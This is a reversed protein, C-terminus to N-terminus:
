INRKLFYHKSMKSQCSSHLAETQIGGIDMYKKCRTEEFTCTKDTYAHVTGGFSTDRESYFFGKYLTYLYRKLHQCGSLTPIVSFM